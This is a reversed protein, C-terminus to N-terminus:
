LLGNPYEFSLTQKKLYSCVMLGLVFSEMKKGSIMRKYKPKPTKGNEVSLILVFTVPILHARWFNTGNPTDPPPTGGSEATPAIEKHPDAGGSLAPLM